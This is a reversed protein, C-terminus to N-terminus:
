LRGAVFAGIFEAMKMQRGSHFNVVSDHDEAGVKLIVRSAADGNPMHREYYRFNAVHNDLMADLYARPHTRKGEWEATSGAVEFHGVGLDRLKQANLKPRGTDGRAAGVLAGSRSGGVPRTPLLALSGPAGSGGAGEDIGALRRLVSNPTDIFPEARDKLWQYVEDDIEITSVM